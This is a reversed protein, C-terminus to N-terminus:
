LGKLENLIQSDYDADNASETLTSDTANAGLGSVTGGAPKYESAEELVATKFKEADFEEANVASELLRKKGRPAEIGTFAEEIIQQAQARVASEQAAKGKAKEKELEEQLAAIKEELSAIKAPNAAETLRKYESETIEMLSDKSETVHKKPEAEAESSQSNKEPSASELISLVRGDRGPKTVFDVSNIATLSEIIREGNASETISGDGNISVGIYPAAEKIFERWTPMIKVDAEISGDPMVQGDSELVGVLNRLSGEPREFRETQSPHDLNMHTGAKFLDVSEAIVEPSYYGSSGKGPSIMRVRMRSGTNEKIFGSESVHM